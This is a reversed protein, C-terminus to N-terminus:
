LNWQCCMCCLLFSLVGNTGASPGCYCGGKKKEKEENELRTTIVVREEWNTGHSRGQQPPYRKGNSPVSPGDNEGMEWPKIRSPQEYAKAPRDPYSTQEFHSRDKKDNPYSSPAQQHDYAPALENQQQTQSPNYSYAQSADQPYPPSTQNSTQAQSADYPYAQSADSPYPANYEGSPNVSYTQSPDYPYAQSSTNAHYSANYEANTTPPHQASDGERGYGYAQEKGKSGNYSSTMTPYKKAKQ